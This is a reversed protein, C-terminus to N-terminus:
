NLLDGAPPLWSADDPLAVMNGRSESGDPGPEYAQALVLATARGRRSAYVIIADARAGAEVLYGDCAYACLPADAAEAALGKAVDEARGAENSAIRTLSRRGDSAEIVLFPTMPEDPSTSGVGHRLAFSALAYLGADPDLAPEGEPAFVCRGGFDCIMLRGDALFTVPTRQEGPHSPQDTVLAGEEVRYVLLIRALGQDQGRSYVLEGARTFTAALPAEAQPSSAEADLRWGGLLAARIADDDDPAALHANGAGAPFSGESVEDVNLYVLIGQLEPELYSLELAVDALAMGDEPRWAVELRADCRAIAMHAPHDAALEEAIGMSQALVHPAANLSVRAAPADDGEGAALYFGDDREAVPGIKALWAFLEAPSPSALRTQFLILLSLAHSM